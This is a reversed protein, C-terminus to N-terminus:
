SIRQLLTGYMLSGTQNVCADWSSFRARVYWLIRWTGSGITVGTPLTFGTNGSTVRNVLVNITATSSISWFSSSGSDVPTGVAPWSAIAAPIYVNSGAVTAGPLLNSTTNVAAFIVSGVATISSPVSFAATTQVTLDNFTIQTGSVTIPM